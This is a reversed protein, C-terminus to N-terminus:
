RRRHNQEFERTVEKFIDEATKEKKPQMNNINVPARNSRVSLAAMVRQVLPDDSYDDVENGEGQYYESNGYSNRNSDSGNTGRGRGGESSHVDMGSREQYGSAEQEEPTGSVERRPQVGSHQESQANRKSRRGSSIGRQTKYEDLLNIVDASSGYQYVQQAGAKMVPPLSEIWKTLDGSQLIKKLDPHAAEIAMQHKQVDSLVLQNKIPQIQQEFNQSITNRTDTLRSDVYAEMAKAIDPYMEFVEQVEHPLEKPKVPEKQEAKLKRLEQALQDVRSRYLGIQADANQKYDRYLKEYESGTDETEEKRPRGRRRPTTPEEKTQEEHAAQQQAYMKDDWETASMRPEATEVQENENNSSDKIQEIHTEPSGTDTQEMASIAQDFAEKYAAEEPSITENENM